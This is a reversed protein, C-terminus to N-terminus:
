TGFFLYPPVYYILNKTYTGWLWLSPVFGALNEIYTGRLWLVPVFGALNGVYTGDFGTDAEVARIHTPPARIGAM